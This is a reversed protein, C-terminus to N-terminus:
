CVTKSSIIQCKLTEAIVSRGTFDQKNIRHVCFMNKVSNNVTKEVTQIVTPTLIMDTKWRQKSLISLNKQTSRSWVGVQIDPPHHSNQLRTRQLNATQCCVRFARQTLLSLQLNSLGSAKFRCTCRGLTRFLLKILAAKLQFTRSHFMIVCCVWGQVIENIREARSARVSLEESEAKFYLNIFSFHWYM